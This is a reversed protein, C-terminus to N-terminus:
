HHEYIEMLSGDLVNYRSVIYPAEGCTIELKKTLIYDTWSKNQFNIKKTTPVWSEGKVRNFVNKYGFWKEDLQNNQENCVWPPTFVEAKFKKRFNKNEFNKLYGKKIFNINEKKFLSIKIEEKEKKIGNAWIINTQKTQDLLLIKIIDIDINEDNKKM